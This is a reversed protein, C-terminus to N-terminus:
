IERAMLFISMEILLLVPVFVDADCIFKVLLDVKEICTFMNRKYVALPM